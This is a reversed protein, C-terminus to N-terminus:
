PMAEEALLMVEVERQWDHREISPQQEQPAGKQEEPAPEAVNWERETHM